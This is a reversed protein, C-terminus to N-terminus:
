ESGWGESSQRSLQGPKLQSLILNRPLGSKIPKSNTEVDAFIEALAL